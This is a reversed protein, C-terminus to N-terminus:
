RRSHSLGAPFAKTVAAPVSPAETAPTQASAATVVCVLSMMALLRGFTQMVNRQM